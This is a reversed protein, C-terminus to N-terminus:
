GTKGRFALHPLLSPAIRWLFYGVLGLFLLLSLYKAIRFIPEGRKVRKWEKSFIDGSLKTIVEAYRGVLQGTIETPAMGALGDIQSVLQSHEKYNLRLIIRRRCMHLTVLDEDRRYLGEVINGEEVNYKKKSDVYFALSNARALLEAVDSRVGDIWAQRFESTKTEKTFIAALFAVAGGIGAAIIPASVSDPM